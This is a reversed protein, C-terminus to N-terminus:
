ADRLRTFDVDLGDGLVTARRRHVVNQRSTFRSDNAGILACDDGNVPACAPASFSKRGCVLERVPEPVRSANGKKAIGLITKIFGPTEVPLSPGVVVSSVQEQRLGHKRRSAAVL